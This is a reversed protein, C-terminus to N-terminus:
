PLTVRTPGPYGSLNSVTFNVVSGHFFGYYPLDNPLLIRGAVVM